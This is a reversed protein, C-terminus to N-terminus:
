IQLLHFLSVSVHAFFFSIYKFIDEKEPYSHRLLKLFFLILATLYQSKKKQQRHSHIYRLSLKIQDETMRRFKRQVKICFFLREAIFIQMFILKTLTDLVSASEIYPPDTLCSQSYRMKSACFMYFYWLAPNLFTYLATKTRNRIATAPKLLTLIIENIM